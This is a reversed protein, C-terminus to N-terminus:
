KKGKGDKALKLTIIATALSCLSTALSAIKEIVEIM